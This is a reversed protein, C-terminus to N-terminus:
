DFIAPHSNRFAVLEEYLLVNAAQLKEPADPGWHIHVSGANAQRQSVSGVVFASCCLAIGISILKTIARGPSRQRINMKVQSGLFLKQWGGGGAREIRCRGHADFTEGPLRTRGTPAEILDIKM